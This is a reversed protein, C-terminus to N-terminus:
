KRPDCGQARVGGGLLNGVKTVRHVEGEHCEFLQPKGKIQSLILIQGEMWITLDLLSHRTKSRRDGADQM